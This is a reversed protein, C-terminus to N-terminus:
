SVNLLSFVLVFTGLFMSIEQWISYILVAVQAQFRFQIENYHFINVPYSFPFFCLLIPQSFPKM